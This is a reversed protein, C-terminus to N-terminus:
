VDGLWQSAGEAASAPHRSAQFDQFSCICPGVSASAAAVTVLFRLLFPPGEVAQQALRTWKNYGSFRRGVMRRRQRDVARAATRNFEQKPSKKLWQWFDSTPQSQCWALSTAPLKGNCGRASFYAGNLVVHDNLLAWPWWEILRLFVLSIYRRSELPLALCHSLGRAVYKTKSRSGGIQQFTSENLECIARFSLWCFVFCDTKGGHVELLELRQHRSILATKSVATATFYIFWNKDTANKM